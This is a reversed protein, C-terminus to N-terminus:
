TPQSVISSLERHFVGIEEETNYYHVSARVVAPLGEKEMYIPTAQTGGVSVNIGRAGLKSKIVSSEIGKM